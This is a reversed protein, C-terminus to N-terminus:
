LASFGAFETETLQNTRNDGPVGRGGDFRDSVNKEHMFGLDPPKTM